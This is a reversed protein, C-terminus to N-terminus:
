CHRLFCNTPTVNSCSNFWFGGYNYKSVRSFASRIDKDRDFTSFQMSSRYVSIFRPLLQRWVIVFLCKIVYTSLIVGRRRDGHWLLRRQCKASTVPRWKAAPVSWNSETSDMRLLWIRNTDTRRFWMLIYTKIHPRAPWSVTTFTWVLCRM